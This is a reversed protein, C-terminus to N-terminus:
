RELKCIPNNITLSSSYIYTLLDLSPGMEITHGTRLSGRQICMTRDMCKAVERSLPQTASATHTKAGEQVTVKM